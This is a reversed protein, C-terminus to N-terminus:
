ECDYKEDLDFSGIANEWICNMIWWRTGDFYLQFLNIGTIIVEKSGPSELIQYTSTVQAMHGIRETTRKCEVEYLTRSKSHALSMAIFSEVTLTIQNATSDEGPTIMVLNADPHWLSAFRDWNRPEGAQGSITEYLVSLVSNIDGVDDASAKPLKHFNSQGYAGASSLLLIAASAFLTFVLRKM